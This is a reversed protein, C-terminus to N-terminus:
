QAEGERDVSPIKSASAHHDRTVVLPNVRLPAVMEFSLLALGFNPEGLRQLQKVLNGKCCVENDRDTVYIWWVETMDGMLLGPYAVIEQKNATTYVYTYGRSMERKVFGCELLFAETVQEFVQAIPLIM